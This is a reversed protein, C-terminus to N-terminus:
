RKPVWTWIMECEVPEIGTADTVKVHVNIEGKEQGELLAIQEDTLNADGSYVAEGGAAQQARANSAQQLREQSVELESVAAADVQDFRATFELVAQDGRTRVEHLIHRVSENVQHDVSDDWALLKALADNFDSQSANLRTIKATM